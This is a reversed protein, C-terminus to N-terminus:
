EHRVGPAKGFRHSYAVFAQHQPHGLSFAIEAFYSLIALHALLCEGQVYINM